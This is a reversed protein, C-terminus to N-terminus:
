RTHVCYKINRKAMYKDIKITRKQSNNSECGDIKQQQKHRQTIKM